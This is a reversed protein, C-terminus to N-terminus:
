RGDFERLFRELAGPQWETIGGDSVKLSARRGALVVPTGVTLAERLAPRAAVVAFYARSFPAVTVTRLSDAHAADTWVGARQVFLRGGTRKVAPAAEGRSAQDRPVLQAARQRVEEDMLAKSTVGSMAASAQAAEFARAGSMERPAAMPPPPTGGGGALLQPEQVLYSTYETLIGYRLGLARIEEVLAPTNGELRAQRTLEGIRRAAWLQPIYDDGHDREPFRAEITFRERTGGRTGEIVVPGTGQGRYRALLVLEEGYFLDPLATPAQDLLTVPARVIRLDTLAPRSLKALISGVADGVDAGPSVYTASGRGEVALRDLLYTNVDQGVGVTFVRSRGISAAARAAIRDPQQEGVSPLGDTVFVVLALRERDTHAALAADLAGAINTGGNAALRDIFERAAGLAAPTVSSWGERFERVGSSFAILRFRDIPALGDLAQRLAARAQEMKAGSMSGSIDVVLTLDRGIATESDQAPPALFLLAYGDDGSPRHTLVSGGVLGRRLPLILEVDGAVPPTVTIRLTGGRRSETIPHTPSYATAFDAERAAEVSMTVPAEGRTGAAHRLRLADGDSGLVQTYRIVVTRTEGPQVPFVQARILGHGVLTLLAPDKLQRVIGEYISRAQEASMMEGKLETEGQFLSFDTFVAEGPVPYHYTGEAVVRGTNRFRETVEYRAVRGRVTIRVNSETRVVAPSDRLPVPRDPVIWGQAGLSPALLALALLLAPARM